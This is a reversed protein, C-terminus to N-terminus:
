RESENNYGINSLEFQKKSISDDIKEEIMKYLESKTIFGIIDNSNQDKIAIAFNSFDKRNDIILDFLNQGTTNITKFKYFDDDDFFNIFCVSHNKHNKFHGKLGSGDNNESYVGDNLMGNVNPKEGIIFARLYKERAEKKFEEIKQQETKQSNNKVVTDAKEIQFSKLLNEFSRRKFEELIKNDKGQENVSEKLKEDNNTNNIIGEVNVSKQEDSIGTISVENKGKELNSLQAKNTNVNKNVNSVSTGAYFNNFNGWNNNIISTAGVALTGALAVAAAVKGVKSLPTSKTKYKKNPTSKIKSSIKKRKKKKTENETSDGRTLIVIDKNNDEKLTSIREKRKIEELKAKEKKNSINIPDIKDRYEKHVIEENIFNYRNEIQMSNHAKAGLVKSQKKAFFMGKIRNAIGKLKNKNNNLLGNNYEISIGACYLNNIREATAESEFEEASMPFSSHFKECISKIYGVSYLTGWNIDVDRLMSYVIPDSENVIKECYHIPAKDKFHLRKIDKLLKKREEGIMKKSFFKPIPKRLICKNDLVAKYYGDSYDCIIKIKGQNLKEM